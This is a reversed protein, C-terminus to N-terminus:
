WPAERTSGAARGEEEASVSAGIRKGGTLM